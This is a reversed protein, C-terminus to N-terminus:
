TALLVSFSWIKGKLFPSYPNCNWLKVSIELYTSWLGTALDCFTVIDSTRSKKILSARALKLQLIADVTIFPNWMQSRYKFIPSYPSCNWLKVSIGMYKLAEKPLDCSSHRVDSKQILRARAQKLELTADIKNYFHEVNAVQLFYQVLDKKLKSSLCIQM